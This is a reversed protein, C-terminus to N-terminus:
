PRVVRSFPPRGAECQRLDAIAFARRLWRDRGDFRPVFPTRGHMATRNDIVLLDGPTLRVGVAVQRLTEFLRSMAFKGDDTTAEMAHLDAVVTVNGAHETIAALLPSYETRDTGVFSTSYAIRFVPERLCRVVDPELLPLADAVGAVVTQSNGDQDPRLCLLTVFDPKTPHFGNETHLELLVSGVNEQHNELGRLAVIDQVLAGGKEGAYAILDGLQALVILQALTSIPLDPLPLSRRDSPTPPLEDDLPMGRILLAGHDTSEWRFRALSTVLDAPLYRSGAVTEAVLRNDLVDVTPCRDIIDRCGAVLTARDDAGLTASQLREPFPLEPPKM